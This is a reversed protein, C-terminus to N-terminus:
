RTLPTLIFDAGQQIISFSTDLITQQDEADLVDIGEAQMGRILGILQPSRALAFHGMGGGADMNSIDIVTVDIDGLEDTSSISGLRDREGRLMASILLARDRTSVIVFVPVGREVVPRAQKRFVDIDIDPSILMVAGIKAFVEDFGVRAMTRLADMTLFAGMSHAVVNLQRANSRAMISLTQELADRSYLASERDFVYGQATAASPWSFQVSAQTRGYDKLLQAHRYLGEAFNTNYGHVFLSAVM